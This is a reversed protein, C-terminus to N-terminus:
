WPCPSEKRILAPEPADVNPIGFENPTVLAFALFVIDISYLLRLATSFAM